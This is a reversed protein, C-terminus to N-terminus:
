SIVCPQYPRYNFAADTFKIWSVYDNYDKYDKNNNNNKLLKYKFIKFIEIADLLKYRCISNEDILNETFTNFEEKIDTEVYTYMTKMHAAYLIDYKDYNISRFPKPNETISVQEEVKEEIKIEVKEEIKEELKDELKDEVKDELKDEVKDNEIKSTYSNFTNIIIETNETVESM